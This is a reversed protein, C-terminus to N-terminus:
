KKQLSKTLQFMEPYDISYKVEFQQGITYRDEYNFIGQQVTKNDTSYTLIAYDKAGGRSNRREIATITAVTIKTPEHTLIRSVRNKGFDSILAMKAMTLGGISLYILASIGKDKLYKIKNQKFTVQRKNTLIHGAVSLTLLIWGLFVLLYSLGIVLGNDKYGDLYFWTSGVLVLLIGLIRINTKTIVRDLFYHPV